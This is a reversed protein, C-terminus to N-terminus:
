APAVERGERDIMHGCRRCYLQRVGLIFFAYSVQNPYKCGQCVVASPDFGPAAAESEEGRALLSRGPPRGPGRVRLSAKTTIM